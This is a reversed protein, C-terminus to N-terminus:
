LLLRSILPSFAFKTLLSERRLSTADDQVAYVAWGACAKDALGNDHCSNVAEVAMGVGVVM